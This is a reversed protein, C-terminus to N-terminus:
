PAALAVVYRVQDAMITQEFRPGAMALERPNQSRAWVGARNPAQMQRMKEAEAPHEQLYGDDAGISSTKLANTASVNQPAPKPNRENAPVPNEPGPYFRQSVAPRLRAALASVRTRPASLM